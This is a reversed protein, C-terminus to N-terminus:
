RAPAAHRMHALVAATPWCDVKLGNAKQYAGLALRTKMGAKGDIKDAYLGHKTLEEQMAAVDSSRLLPIKAWPTEFPRPDDIRDSLHGVFLVYLDAYNYQKLVFYNRPALFAPGYTGQPLFLSAPEAREAADLTRGYAPTFGRALWAAIPMPKDPDGLTCDLSKPARVEYGWRRGPQWGKNVLQRAASALADPISHFIDIRGDGDFDVGHKYFESPLFQTMGMAGAWSSRMDARTVQGQQLMKLALLFEQRFQEKRRGLYGQTALVRLADYGLRHTGFATERGWIALLIEPAVGFRKHLATLTARNAAYLKRAQAALREITAENLYDAASKIFEAQEPPHAEPRGPVVLDPLSLDPALGRTAADFTARTIGLKEAQPWLAQLWAEFGADARACPAPITLVFVAFAIACIAAKAYRRAFTIVTRETIPESAPVVGADARESTRSMGTRAPSEPSRRVTKLQKGPTGLM